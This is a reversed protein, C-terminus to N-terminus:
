YREGKRFIKSSTITVVLQEARLIGIRGYSGCYNQPSIGRQRELLYRGPNCVAIFALDLHHNIEAIIQEVDRGPPLLQRWFNNTSFGHFTLVSGAGLAKFPGQDDGIYVKDANVIVPQHSAVPISVCDTFQRFSTSDYVPVRGCYFSPLLEGFTCDKVRNFNIM